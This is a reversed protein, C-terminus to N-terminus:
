PRVNWSEVRLTGDADRCIVGYAGTALKLPRDAVAGIALLAFRAAGNSTVLLAPGTATALFAHWAALRSEADVQWDRPAVGHADWAALAEAGIRAIVADEGQNEDPGHDIERLWDCPEPVLAPANPQCALIAAATARTRALPSVLARAFQWGQAAFHRGLAAGQEEGAPTLPLDTRAGIRRPAEGHAFTNGHRVIVFRPGAGRLDSCM